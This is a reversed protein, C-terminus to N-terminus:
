KENFKTTIKLPLSSFIKTTNRNRLFRSRGAAQLLEAEILSLQIDRLTINDYTFFRFRFDNWDIVQDSLRSTAANPLKFLEALFFYVFDPKNPTGVVSVDYGNLKDSGACNGFYLNHSKGFNETTLNPDDLFNLSKFKDYHKAHTIVKSKNLSNSLQAYVNSNYNTMGTSSFSRKTYQEVIGISKINTIDIVIVRNGYLQKYIPIPATASMIFIKKNEPFNKKVCFNIKTVDHADKFLYESELLKIIKGKGISAAYKSFGPSMTFRPMKHVSNLPLNRLFTEINKIELSYISEDFSTFDLSISGIDILDNLPDEDFIIFDHKFSSLDNIARTHTTLVTTESARCIENARLFDSARKKDEETLKIPKSQIKLSGKSISKIINSVESFLGATKLESITTNIIDDSFEPTEPTVSHNVRMRDSMEDKLRHFPLCILAEKEDLFAESKGAGTTIKFIYIPDEPLLNMIGDLEKVIPYSQDLIPDTIYEINFPIGKKAKHFTDKLLRTADGITILSQEKLRVVKGKKFQVELLNHFDADEEFPSFNKLAKPLYRYRYIEPLTIFYDEPYTEIGREIDPFYTAGGNSNVERMRDLIRNVGGHIYYLNTFLGVLIQYSVRYNQNFFLDLIKVEKCAESWNYDSVKNPRQPDKEIKFKEYFRENTAIQGHCYATFYCNENLEDMRFLISRGPYYMRCLDTCQPDALSIGKENIFIQMLGRQIWKAVKYDTIAEELIFMVRFKRREPTDSFTSYIINPNISNIRCKKIAEEPTIGGDFDLTFIQQSQWDKEGIGTAHSSNFANSLVITELQDISTVTTINTTSSKVSGADKGKPKEKLQKNSKTIIM